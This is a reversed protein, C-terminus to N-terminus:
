IKRTFIKIDYFHRVEDMITGSFWKIKQNDYVPVKVLMRKNLKINLTQDELGRIIDNVKSDMMAIEEPLWDTKPIYCNVGLKRSSLKTAICMVQDNNHSSAGLDGVSPVPSGGPHTHLSGIYTDEGCMEPLIKMAVGMRGGEKFKINGKSSKCISVGQETIKDPNVRIIKNSSILNVKGTKEDFEFNGFEGNKQRVALSYFSNPTLLTRGLKFGKEAIIPTDRNIDLKM